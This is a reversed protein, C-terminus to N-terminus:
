GRAHELWDLVSEEISPTFSNFALPTQLQLANEQGLRAFVKRAKEVELQVDAVPAYPDLTPAVILTQRPAIAALVEDFDFPLRSEHGVFFGLRPLLGHLHSYHQVGETGKAPGSLRLPDVGCVAAVGKVQEDLAATVLGVKAGLAYGVLYIRSPDVAELAAAADVAARTDAVMKGLLSWKPYRQYFYRADRVRTGFGIQDFALVAFGRRTLSAFFPQTDRSYGTSYAYPHMWVVVPWHSGRPSGDAGIPFYFDAKLDDGYGLGVAGMSPNKFPRGLLLSIWGQDPMVQGGKLEHRAPFRVGAPEDGMAWNIKEIITQRSTESWPASLEREGAAPFKSPDISEGSLKKWREFTYGNVWVERRPYSQRGFVTDLFDCFIGIDEATTPHEGERLNLWVKDEHGLFRYVKEVAPFAHEMGFPNGEHEAYASYMFLGRPAVMAMLAHQDVPLKHERGVFFRLRPHFWHPFVGTIQEISENVFMDTTYRWPDCEGTNGSSAIVAAIREDFAAALLAQKGNRSHGTIAIKQKDVEPLTQLYDVARMGAWAWRALCSFDYEPYVDIFKDSDDAPGFIPDGAFYICGIYGRRVATAVWPWTRPHNTLFVPFPGKGPPVIVQVRLTGRHDPGFELRVNRITLKGDTETGTIAVRLNDPQPPLKGFVWQEFQARIQQRKQMWGEPTQVGELPDNLLPLSPMGDFDPPLEGTRKLWDEWSKDYANIRGTIEVPRRPLIKLLVELTERRKDLADVAATTPQPVAPVDTALASAGAALTATQTIFSRRTIKEM